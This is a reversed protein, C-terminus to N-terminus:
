STESEKLKKEKLKRKIEAIIVNWIGWLEIENGVQNKEREERRKLRLQINEKETGMGFLDNFQWKSLDPDYLIAPNARSTVLCYPRKIKGIESPLLLERGILNNSSGVSTIRSNSSNSSTNTTYAQTTYKDLKESIEKRTENDDTQLYVWTECNGRIIRLGTKEYKEELQAFDQLFLFFRMGKGGGVTLMQQFNTIKTFNGFEDCVFNVRNKLRGGMQKAEKSLIMYSQSVFLTALSHYTLRDDPLVIFIAMKKRGLDVPHFNSKSSMNAIYPNTFLKLTMVASTYFSGRTRSPAIDSVGLLGKAPHHEPLKAIYISLPLVEGVQKCMNILFYYVNALNQYKKNEGFRNDYVVAMIGAAIMSAEGDNWIKEGKAEGVLQSTLDWTADIAAPLDNEDVYDIIVQLYNWLDSYIAEDYNITKVEYGQKELYPRCYDVLEGKVDTAVISEGSIGLLGITELVSCRTKGSRTAGITLVHTDTDIFYIKEGRKVDQKGIVFGGRDMEINIKKNPDLHSPLFISHFTQDFEEKRLWRASGCQNQGAVAPTHIDPTIKVLESEYHAKNMSLYLLGAVELACLSLFFKVKDQDVLMKKIEQISILFDKFAFTRTFVGTLYLNIYLVFFAILLFLVLISKDKKMAKLLKNM